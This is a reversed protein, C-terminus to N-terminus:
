VLLNKTELCSNGLMVLVSFTKVVTDKELLEIVKPFDKKLYYARAIIPITTANWLSAPLKQFNELALDVAGTNLYEQAVILTYNPASDAQESREFDLPKEVSFSLVSLIQSSVERGEREVRLAYNGPRVEGLAKRFIWDDGTKDISDIPIIYNPDDQSVLSIM